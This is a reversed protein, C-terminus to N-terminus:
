INQDSRFGYKLGIKRKWTEAPICQKSSWSNIVWM